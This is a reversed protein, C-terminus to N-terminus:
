VRGRVASLLSGRGLPPRGCRRRQASAPDVSYSPLRGMGGGDQFCSDAAVSAAWQSALQVASEELSLHRERSIEQM